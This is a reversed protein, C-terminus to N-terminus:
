DYDDKEVVLADDDDDESLTRYLKMISSNWTWEQTRGEEEPRGRNNGSGNNSM